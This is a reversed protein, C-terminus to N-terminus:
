NYYSNCERAKTGICVILRIIKILLAIGFYSYVAQDLLYSFFTSLYASVCLYYMTKRNTASLM